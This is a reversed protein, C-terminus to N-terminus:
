RDMRKLEIVVGTMTGEVTDNIIEDLNIFENNGFEPNSVNPKSYYVFIIGTRSSWINL